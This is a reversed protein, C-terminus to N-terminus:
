TKGVIKDKEDSAAGAVQEAAGTAAEEVASTGDGLTERKTIAETNKAVAVNRDKLSAAGAIAVIVASLGGPFAMCYAVLDFQHGNAINWAVFGNACLVYSAGGAAGVVRTIEFEGSIGKLANTLGSFAKKDSM